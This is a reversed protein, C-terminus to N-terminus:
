PVTQIITNSMPNVDIGGQSTAVSYRKEVSPRDETEGFSSEQVNQPLGELTTM